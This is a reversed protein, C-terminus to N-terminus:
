GGTDPKVPEIPKFYILGDSEYIQIPVDFNENKGPTPGNKVDITMLIHFLDDDGGTGGSGGDGGLYMELEAEAVADLRARNRNILNTSVTVMTLVSMLVIALVAFSVISEVLTEGRRNLKM